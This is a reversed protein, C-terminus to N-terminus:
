NHLGSSKVRGGNDNFYSQSLLFPSTTYYDINFFMNLDTPVAWTTYSKKFNAEM